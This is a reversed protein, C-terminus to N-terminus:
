ISAAHEADAFEGIVCGEHHGAKGPGMVLDQARLQKGFPCAQFHRRHALHELLQGRCTQHIGPTAGTTAIAQRTRRGFDGQGIHYGRHFARDAHGFAVCMGALAIQFRM